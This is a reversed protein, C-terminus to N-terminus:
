CDHQSSITTRARSPRHLRDARAADGPPPTSLVRAPREHGARGLRDPGDGDDRRATSVSESATRSWTSSNCTRPFRRLEHAYPLVAKSQAGLVNTYWIGLAAIVIPGNQLPPADRFHRDMAAFGDLFQRFASPRHRDDAVARDRLRGLLPRRGLGLVRVHERHRHRVRGGSGREHEGRRLSPPRCGRGLAATLWARAQEANTLTEVTTFTKSSVVFLTTAPELDSLNSAIDAGDVNSVFRCTLDDRGFARLALYAM